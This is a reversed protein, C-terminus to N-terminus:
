GDLGGADLCLIKTYIVISPAEFCSTPGSRQAALRPQDPTFCCVGVAGAFWHQQAAQLLVVPRGSCYGAPNPNIFGSGQFEVSFPWLVCVGEM